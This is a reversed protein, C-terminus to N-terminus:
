ASFMIFLMSALFMACGVYGRQNSRSCIAITAGTAGLVVALGIMIM